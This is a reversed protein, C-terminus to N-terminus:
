KKLLNCYLATMDDVLRTYHFKQLIQEKGSAITHRMQDDAVLNLLNDVFVDEDNVESLLATKGNHVINAIGGVNTSVVAKGAAKAEILSVPTGENFSTLAVVDLGAMVVDIEKIWSTFILPAKSTINDPGTYQIGMETAQMRIIGAAEGDGVIFAKIKKDTKSLLNAIARIFLQHNKVPVLRGIIGIALEDDKVKYKERFQKRKEPMGVTFRDLDFGLPIVEVQAEPCIKYTSVLDQKQLDSIAIIKSSKKALRREINKFVTAKLSGFYADFVHGHFTHVIVPVKMNYAARRGLAGAKSAHTHVIDPKFEEILQKIKKYALYDARPNIERRMEPIIIPEIGLHQAMYESNAESPDNMGGVLLTEYESPMYKSLYVANYTPGGVNFRNLIRLIKPM